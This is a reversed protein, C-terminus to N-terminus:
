AGGGEAPELGGGSVASETWGSGTQRELAAEGWEWGHRCVSGSRSQRVGSDTLTASEPSFFRIPVRTEALTVGPNVRTHSVRDSKM